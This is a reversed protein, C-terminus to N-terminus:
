TRVLQRVPLSDAQTKTVPEGDRRRLCPDNWNDDFLSSRKCVVADMQM